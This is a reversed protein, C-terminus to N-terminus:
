PAVPAILRQEAVRFVTYGAGELLLDHHTRFYNEAGSDEREIPGIVVFEVGHRRILEESEAGGRLITQVDREIPVYDFGYSWLWGPYGLLVPRGSLSSVWHHSSGASAVVSV